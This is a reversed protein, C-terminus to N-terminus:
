LISQHDCYKCNDKNTSSSFDENIVKNLFIVLNKEFNNLFNNNFLIDEKSNKKDKFVM